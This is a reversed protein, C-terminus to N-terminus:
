ANSRIQALTPLALDKTSLVPTKCPWAIAVEPDNWVLGIEDQPDYYDTCKYEVDALESLVLFGHAYGPPIYFQRNNHASLVVGEWAGFTPSEPDIDVAVDFIEGHVTRMLKGQPRNQQAHMGRLVHRSSRSYNDQVFELEIGAQERYRTRRFTELFFGRQDGFVKPEIILVGPLGTRIVNV